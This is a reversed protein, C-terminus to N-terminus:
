KRYTTGLASDPAPSVTSIDNRLSSSTHTSGLGSAGTSAHCRHGLVTQLTVADARGKSSSSHRKVVPQATKRGEDDCSARKYIGCARGGKVFAHLANSGLGEFSPDFSVDDVGGEAIDFEVFLRHPEGALFNEVLATKGIGAEGYVLAIRGTGAAAGRLADTLTKLSADRELLNTVSGTCYVIPSRNDAVVRLTPPVPDALHPGTVAFRGKAAGNSVTSTFHM